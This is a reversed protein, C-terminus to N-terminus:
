TMMTITHAEEGKLIIAKYFRPSHFLPWSLNHLSEVRCEPASRQSNSALWVAALLPSSKIHPNTEGKRRDKRELVTTNKYYINYSTSQGSVLQVNWLYKYLQKRRYGCPSLLNPFTWSIASWIIHWKSCVTDKNRIFITTTSCWLPFQAAHLVMPCRINTVAWAARWRGLTVKARMLRRCLVRGQCRVKWVSGVM